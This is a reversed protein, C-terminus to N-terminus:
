STYISRKKSKKNIKRKNTKKTYKKANIEHKTKNKERLEDDRVKVLNLLKDHLDEEIIDDEFDDTEVINMGGKQYNYSLAWNPIVLNDFLDSVNRMGGIKENNSNNFTIIPSLKKKMMISNVNFGGSYIGNPDDINYILEDSGIYNDINCNSTTM